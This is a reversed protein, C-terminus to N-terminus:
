RPFRGGWPIETEEPQRGQRITTPKTNRHFAQFEYTVGVTLGSGSSFHMLGAIGAVDWRLGAARFRAGLLVQSLRENGTREPGHRGHVEGVLELQRHLPVSFGLGYTLMDSQSNPRVPSGLIGLGVSGLLRARGLRESLLISAYFDTEDTGLGSENSANPLQVEFKFSVAPRAGKEGTLKLKTGLSLDGYDSTSDGAIDPAIVPANRRTITLFDRFVGSLQFEAYDGAGIRITTVGFRMLGGELGSLSYRQRHLFDVGFSAHVAGVSVLEPNETKLPREQGAALSSSWVVALLVGLIRL